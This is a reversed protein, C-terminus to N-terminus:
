EREAGLGDLYRAASVAAIAGDGVATSIQRLTKKRVDGAAFVAPASTLMEEDTIVYGADDRAVQGALFESNPLLGVYLFVGTVDLRDAAGTEVNRVEVAEVSEKGSIRTVVSALVPVIKKESLARDSVVKVARFEHRRHVLYVRSCLRALFVAEELASDGGGIVAVAQDRFFPGDCTACYSVGKGRLEREGPVGLQRPRAGSAVIVAGADLVGGATKVEVRGGGRSLSEAEGQVLELGFQRAQAEMKRCLEFGSVPEEFGPYNEVKSTLAAQGGPALRELCGAKWGARSAYLGATLGAPGAGIILVDFRM